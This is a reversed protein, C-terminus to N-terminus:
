LIPTRLRTVPTGPRGYSLVDTAYLSQAFPRIYDPIIYVTGDEVKAPHGYIILLTGPMTQRRLADYDMSLPMAWYTKFSGEGTPSPFFIAKQVSRDEIWDFYHHELSFVVVYSTDYKTIETDTVIGAWAIM